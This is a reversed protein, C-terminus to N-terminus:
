CIYKEPLSNQSRYWGFCSFVALFLHRCVLFAACINTTKLWDGFIKNTPFIRQHGARRQETINETYSTSVRFPEKSIIKTALGQFNRGKDLINLILAEKTGRWDCANYLFVEMIHIRGNNNTAPLHKFLFQDLVKNLNLLNRNYFLM